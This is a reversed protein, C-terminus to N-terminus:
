YAFFDHRHQFLVVQLAMVLGLVALAVVLVRLLRALGHQLLELLPELALLLGPGRGGPVAWAVKNIRPPARPDAAAGPPGPRSTVKTDQLDLYRSQCPRCCLRQHRHGTPAVLLRPGPCLM